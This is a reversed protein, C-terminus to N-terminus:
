EGRLNRWANDSFATNISQAIMEADARHRYYNGVAAREAALTAKHGDSTLLPWEVDNQVEARGDPGITVHFYTNGPEVRKL